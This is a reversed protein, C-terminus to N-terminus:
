NCLSSCGSRGSRACSLGDSTGRLATWRLPDRSLAWVDGALGCDTKGGYLILRRRAPDSALVFASRREPSDEDTIAFDAPFDCFGNGPTNLVDGARLLTLEGNSSLAYVDNRNGLAGDDHGGVLLLGDASPDPILSASIRGLLEDTPGQVSARTWMSTALDLRWLDRMFPGTFANAGGGGFVTLAGDRIAAAHFLRAPPPTNTVVRAWTNSALDLRWLDSLPTFSAGSTSTNGGMVYFADGTPDYAAAANARASPGGEADVRAWRDTALDLRWTERFLTYAGSSTARFRGGFVLMQNRRTDLAYAMRARASPGDPATVERWRDCRLDYRWLDARFSPRPICMVTPGDDGGFLVLEGRLPDVVGAADARATPQLTTAPECMPLAEVDSAAEGVDVNADSSASAAGDVVPPVDPTSSTTNSSCGSLLLLILARRLPDLM